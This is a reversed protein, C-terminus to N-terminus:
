NCLVLGNIHISHDPRQGEDQVDSAFDRNRFPHSAYIDPIKTPVQGPTQPWWSIYTRDLELSAHGWAQNSGRFNWIHVTVM